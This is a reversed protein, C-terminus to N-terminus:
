ARTSRSPRQSRSSSSGPSRHYGRAIRDLDLRVGLREFIADAQEHMAGRDIRRGTRLPEPRGIFINEVVTLDPFLTPEQYIVAIGADRADAPGDMAVEVGDVLLRGTDPPHVAAFIKVLTSKGAGNEGVLAHAEGPFLDISVDQLAHIAGFAKSAHQLSLVPNGAAPTSGPAGPGGEEISESAM